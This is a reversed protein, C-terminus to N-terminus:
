AAAGNSVIWIRHTSSASPVLLLVWAAAAQGWGFASVGRSEGNFDVFVHIVLTFEATNENIATKGCDLPRGLGEPLCTKGAREVHNGPLTHAGAFGKGVM